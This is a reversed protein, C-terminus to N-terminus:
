IYIFSYHSFSLYQTITEFQATIKRTSELKMIRFALLCKLLHSFSFNFSSNMYSDVTVNVNIDFNFNCNTQCYGGSFNEVMYFRTLPNINCIPSSSEMHYPGEPVFKSCLVGSVM